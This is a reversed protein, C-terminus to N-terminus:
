AEAACGEQAGEGKGRCHLRLAVAAVVLSLFLLVVPTVMVGPVIIVVLPVIMLIAGIPHPRLLIMAFVVIKRPQPCSILLGIPIPAMVVGVRLELDFYPLVACKLTATRHDGTSGRMEQYPRWAAQRGDFRRISCEYAQSVSFALMQM